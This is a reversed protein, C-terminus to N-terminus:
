SEPIFGIVRESPFAILKPQDDSCHDPDDPVIEVPRLVSSLM